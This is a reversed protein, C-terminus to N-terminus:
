RHRRPNLVLRATEVIRDVETRGEVLEYGLLAFVRGRWFIPRANGYWDACSAVCRDDMQGLSSAGLAGLPTFRQAGVRLYLVSASGERLQAWGPGQARVPLGLVGRGEGDDRYFFGHTRTEGQTAGPVDYRDVLRPAEEYGGGLVSGRASGLASGLAISSFSLAGDRRGIAVAARGMAEIREVGHGVEVRYAPAAAGERGLHAADRWSTAWVAGDGAHAGGWGWADGVGYLVWDGVFRNQLAGEGPGPLVRYASTPVARAEDGFAALPLSALATGGRGLEAGFMGDGGGDARVLVHLAGDDGEHFSLQDTPMGWARLAGTPGDDLPLRYVMADTPPAPEPDGERAGGGSWREGIWVYVADRSVYFTRGPPGVMGQARCGLSGPGLDCLVVTHLVAQSTASANRAHVPGRVETWSGGVARLAPFSLEYSSSAGGWFPDRARGLAHPVYLVLRDGILRSAYNRSSYYDNSRLQFSGRHELDGTADIGFLGIETARDRYSFGIVVISDGRILMEDYWDAPAHGPASASIVDVLRMGGGALDVSFIRGRRLVVLHEGHMKVIGGEDVGQVQVNTIESSADGGGTDGAATTAAPAHAGGGSPTMGACGAGSAAIVACACALARALSRARGLDIGQM